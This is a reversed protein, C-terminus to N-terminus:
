CFRVTMRLSASDFSGAASGNVLEHSGEVATPHHDLHVRLTM